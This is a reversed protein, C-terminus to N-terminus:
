DGHRGFCGLDKTGVTIEFVHDVVTRHTDDVIKGIVLAPRCSAFEAPTVVAIADLVHLGFDLCFLHLRADVVQLGRHASEAVLQANEQATKGTFSRFLRCLQAVELELELQGLVPVTCRTAEGAALVARYREPVGLIALQVMGTTALEIGFCQLLFALRRRKFAFEDM